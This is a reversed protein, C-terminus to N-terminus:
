KVVVYLLGCGVFLVCVVFLLALCCVVFLPM